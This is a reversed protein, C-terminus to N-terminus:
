RRSDGPGVGEALFVQLEGLDEAALEGRGQVRQLQQGRLLRVVAVCDTSATLRSTARGTSSMRAAAVAPAPGSCRGRGPSPRSLQALDEDLAGNADLLADLLDALVQRRPGGAQRSADLGTGLQVPQAHQHGVVVLADAARSM